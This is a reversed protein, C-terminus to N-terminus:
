GGPWSVTYTSNTINGTTGTKISYLQLYRLGALEAATFRHWGVIATAATFANTKSITDTTWTTNDVSGRFTFIVSESVNSSAFQPIFVLDLGQKIEITQAVNTTTNAAVTAPVTLTETTIPTVQARLPSALAFALLAIPTIHRM